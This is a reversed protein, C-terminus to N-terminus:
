LAAAGVGRKAPEGARQHGARRALLPGGAGLASADGPAPRAVGAAGVRSSQRSGRAARRGTGRRGARAPSGPAHVWRVGKVTSQRVTTAHGALHRDYRLASWPPAMALM